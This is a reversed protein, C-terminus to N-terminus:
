EPDERLESPQLLPSAPSLCLVSSHNPHDACMPNNLGHSCILPDRPHTSLPSWPRIESAPFATSAQHSEPFCHPNRPAARVAHQQQAIPHHIENDPTPCLSVHRCLASGTTPSALWLCLCEQVKQYLFPNLSTNRLELVTISTPSSAPCPNVLGM